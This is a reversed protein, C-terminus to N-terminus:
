WNRSAIKGLYGHDDPLEQDAMQPGWREGPSGTEERSGYNLDSHVQRRTPHCVSVAEEIPRCPVEVVLNRHYNKGKEREKKKSSM